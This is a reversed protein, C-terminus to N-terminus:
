PARNTELWEMVLEQKPTIANPDAFYGLRCAQRQRAAHVNTMWQKRSNRTRHLIQVLPYRFSSRDHGPLNGPGQTCEKIIERNMLKDIKQIRPGDETHLTNNRHEWQAWALNHLHKLLCRMWSQATKDSIALQTYYQDQISTWRTSPLGELLNKWGIRDQDVVAPAVEHGYYAAPTPAM